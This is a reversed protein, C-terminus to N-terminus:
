KYKLQKSIKNLLSYVHCGACFGAFSELIAFFLLVSTLVIAATGFGVLHSILIGFTFVLGVGASFRKPARDIPKHRIRFQKIVADSLIALPSYKGWNNTRLFFDFLLFVVIVWLGTALYVAALVLVFFATIRAKNENITVFDVPCQVKNDM